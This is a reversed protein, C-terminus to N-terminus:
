RRGRKFGIRGGGAREHQRTPQNEAPAEPATEASDSQEDQSSMEAHADVVETVEAEATAAEDSAAAAEEAVDELMAAEEEALLALNEALIGDNELMEDHVAVLAAALEQVQEALSEITAIAVAAAAEAGDATDAADTAAALAAGLVMGEALDTAAEDAGGSDSVIVEVDGM